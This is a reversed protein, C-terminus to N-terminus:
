DSTMNKLVFKVTDTGCSFAIKGGTTVYYRRSNVLKKVERKAEDSYVIQLSM